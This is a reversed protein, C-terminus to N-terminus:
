EDEQKYIGIYGMEKLQEVTYTDSGQPEGVINENIWKLYQEYEYNGLDPNLYGEYSTTFYMRANPLNPNYTNSLFKLKM